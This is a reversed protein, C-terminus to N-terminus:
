PANPLQPQRDYDYASLREYGVYLGLSPEVDTVREDHRTQGTNCSPVPVWRKLDDGLVLLVVLPQAGGGLLALRNSASRSYTHAQFTDSVSQLGFYVPCLYYLSCSRTGSGPGAHTGMCNKAALFPSRERDGALTLPAKRCQTGGDGQTAGRSM